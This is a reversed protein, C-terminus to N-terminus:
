PNYRYATVGNKIFTPVYLTKTQSDYGADAANIQAGRTNLLQKVSGDAKVLYIEGPWCTVIFENKQTEVIGDAGDAIVAVKKLEKKPTVNFFNGNAFDAVRLGDPLALLGNIGNFENSEFYLSAQNNKVAWIKGTASDSIYVTGLKDITVDNLGEAGEIPLTSIIKELTVDIIVLNTVDAVYLLNKYLGLGKPANLGTIWQNKIITGTTSVKAIYGDGDKESPVGGGICSVYLVDKAFLVSEPTRLLSDTKWLLELSQGYTTSVIVFLILLLMLKKM